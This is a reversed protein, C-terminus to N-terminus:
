GDREAAEEWQDFTLVLEDRGTDNTILQMGEM